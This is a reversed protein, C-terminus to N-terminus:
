DRYTELASLLQPVSYAFLATGAIVLFILWWQPFGRHAEDQTSYKYLPVLLLLSYVISITILAFAALEEAAFYGAPPPTLAYPWPAASLSLVAGYLLCFFSVALGVPYLTLTCLFWIIERLSRLFGVAKGNM